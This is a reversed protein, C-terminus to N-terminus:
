APMNTNAYSEPHDTQVYVQLFSLGEQKGVAVRGTGTSPPPAKRGYVRWPNSSFDNHQTRGRGVTIVYSAVHAELHNSRLLVVVSLIECWCAEHCVVGGMQCEWTDSCPPAAATGGRRSKGCSEGRVIQSMMTNPAAVVSRSSIYSSFMDM